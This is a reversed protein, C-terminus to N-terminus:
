IRIARAAAARDPRIVFLKELCCTQFIRMLRASMGCLALGGGADKVRQRVNVLLGLVSSGIYSLRSLDVVWLGDPEEAFVRLLADNLRDFEGSDLAEPLELDVVRVSPGRDQEQSLRFFDLSM